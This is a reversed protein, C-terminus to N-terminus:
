LLDLDAALEAVVSPEYGALLWERPSLERGTEESALDADPTVFWRHVSLPHLEEPLAPVVEGLGPV